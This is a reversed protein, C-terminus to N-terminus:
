SVSNNNHKVQEFPLRRSKDGPGYIREDNDGAESAQAGKKECDETQARREDDRLRTKGARTKNNHAECSSPPLLM